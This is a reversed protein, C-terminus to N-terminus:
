KVFYIDELLMNVLYLNGEEKLTQEDAYNDIVTQMTTLDILKYNNGSIILKYLFGENLAQIPDTEPRIELGSQFLLDILELGPFINDFSVVLPLGLGNQIFAGPNIKYLRNLVSRYKETGKQYIGTLAILSEAIAQKEWYLDFENMAELILEPARKIRGEELLYYSASHPILESKIEKAYNLYKLAIDPYDKNILYLHWFADLFNGEKMNALAIIVTFLRYKQRHYYSLTNYYISEGLLFLKEIINLAPTFYARNSLGSYIDALLEHLEQYHENKDMGFLHIWTHDTELFVEEAYEKAFDIFGFQLYLGATNIKSLPTNDNIYGRQYEELAYHFNMRSQYLNGKSLHGTPRDLQSLSEDAYELALDFNYFRKELLSLNYYGIAASEPASAYTADFLADIIAELYYQKSNEYDYMGFYLTGLKFSLRRSFGHKEIADLLLNVGQGFRYTKYYMWSLDNIAPLDDPDVELIKKLYLICNEYDNLYDYCQQIQNLTKINDPEKLDAKLYADLAINYMEKDFYLDGLKLDFDPNDPFATSAENLLNIATEYNENIIAEEIKLDYWNINYFSESILPDTDQGFVYCTCFFLILLIGTKKM